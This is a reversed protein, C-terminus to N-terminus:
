DNDIDGIRRGAFVTAIATCMSALFSWSFAWSWIVVLMNNVLTLPLMSDLLVTRVTLSFASALVLSCVALYVILFLAISSKNASVATEQIEEFKQENKKYKEEISDYYEKSDIRVWTNNNSM